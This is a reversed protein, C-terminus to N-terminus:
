GFTEFPNEPARNKTDNPGGPRDTPLQDRGDGKFGVVTLHQVQPFAAGGHQAVQEAFTPHIDLGDLSEAMSEPVTSVVRLLCLVEDVFPKVSEGEFPGEQAFALLAKFMM